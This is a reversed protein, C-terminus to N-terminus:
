APKEPGIVAIMPHVLLLLLAGAAMMVVGGWIPGEGTNYEYVAKRMGGLLLGGGLAIQSVLLALQWSM